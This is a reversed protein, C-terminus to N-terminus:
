EQYAHRDSVWSYRTAPRGAGPQKKKETVEKLVYRKRIAKSFNGPDTSSSSVKGTLALFSTRLESITFEKSPTLYFHLSDKWASGSLHNMLDVLIKHHDFGMIKEGGTYLGWASHWKASGPAADDGAVAVVHKYEEERMLYFYVTDVTHWRPDRNHDSYTRFQTPTGSLNAVGTEEALERVSAKESSEHNCIDVFGGPFALKGKFPANGRKILLIELEGKYIRFICIDVTYTPREYATPDYDSKPYLDLYTGNIGKKRPLKTLKSSM